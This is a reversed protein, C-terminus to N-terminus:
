KMSFHKKCFGSCEPAAGFPCQRGELTRAGCQPGSKKAAPKSSKVTDSSTVAAARVPVYTTLLTRPRQQQLRLTHERFRAASEAFKVPDM